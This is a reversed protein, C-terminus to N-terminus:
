LNTLGQGKCFNFIGFILRYLPQSAQHFASYLSFPLSRPSVPCFGSQSTYSPFAVSKRILVNAWSRPIRSSSFYFVVIASCRSKALIFTPRARQMNAKPSIHHGQSSVSSDIAQSSVSRNFVINVLLNDKSFRCRDGSPLCAAERLCQRSAGDLVDM